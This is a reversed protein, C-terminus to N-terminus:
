PPPRRCRSPHRISRRGAARWPFRSSAESAAYTPVDSPRSGAAKIIPWWKEIEAKHFAGLAEPTLQRAASHGPRARCASAARRIPWPRSPPPMSSPSSTRRRARPCGFGQWFPLYLGPVGPRTSPRSTPRRSGARRACSRSPRSRGARLYRCRQSAEPLDCTSRAPLCIRCHRRPAAIRCSSCSRAPPTRSISAASRREPLWRRHHRVDGQGSQGQALRDAGQRQEGSSKTAVILLQRFPSGRWRSSITLVDYQLRISRARLVLPRGTASIITYGDPAAGAVRSGGITGAAGSVNEVMWRNDSCPARREAFLRGLTDAPGGARFPVIMIIQRSPYTQATATAITTLTAIAAALLSSKM